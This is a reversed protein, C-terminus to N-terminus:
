GNVYQTMLIKVRGEESYDLVMGLYDHVKGHMVTIPVERSYRKDIMKLVAM